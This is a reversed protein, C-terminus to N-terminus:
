TADRCCRHGGGTRDLGIAVDATAYSRLIAKKREVVARGRGAGLRVEVAESNRVGCQLIVHWVSLVVSPIPPGGLQHAQGPRIQTYPASRGEGEIYRAASSQRAAQSASPHLRRSQTDRAVRRNRPHQSAARHHYSPRGVCDIGRARHADDTAESWSASVVAIHGVCVRVLAITAENDVVGRGISGTKHDGVRGVGQGDM